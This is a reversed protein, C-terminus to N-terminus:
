RSRRAAIIAFTPGASKVSVVQFETAALLARYESKTRELSGLGVLM